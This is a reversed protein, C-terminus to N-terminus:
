EFYAYIHLALPRFHNMKLCKKDNKYVKIELLWEQPKVYKATM